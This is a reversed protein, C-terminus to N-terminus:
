GTKRNVTRMTLGAQKPEQQSVDSQTESRAGKGKTQRPSDLLVVSSHLQTWFDLMLSELFCVAHNSPNLALTRPIPRGDTSTSM